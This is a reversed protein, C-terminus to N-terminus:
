SRKGGKLEIIDRNLPHSNILSKGLRWLSGSLPRSPVPRSLPKSSKLPSSLPKSLSYPCAAGDHIFSEHTLRKEGSRLALATSLFTKHYGLGKLRESSDDQFSLALNRQEEARTLNHLVAEPTIEQDSLRDICRGLYKKDGFLFQGTLIPDTVSIDFLRVKEEFEDPKEVRLDLWDTEIEPLNDSVAFVDIDSFPKKSGYLVAFKINQLKNSYVDGLLRRVRDPTQIRALGQAYFTALNGYARFFDIASDVFERDEGSLSVYKMEFDKELGFQGSLLYETWIAFLEYQGLNQKRSKELEQFTQSQQRFRHLDELNFKRGSFEQKEEELLGRELNVLKRGQLSQECYLGHGFYEHFLSLLNKGKIITTQNRPFYIGSSELNLRRRQTFKGWQSEPIQQLSTEEPKYGLLDQYFSNSSDILSKIKSTQVQEQMM